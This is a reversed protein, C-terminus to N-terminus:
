NLVRMSPYSPEKLTAQYNPDNMRLRIPEYIRPMGDPVDVAKRPM